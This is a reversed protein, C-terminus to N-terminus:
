RPEPSRCCRRDSRRLLIKKRETLHSHSNERANRQIFAAEGAGLRPALRQYLLPFRHVTVGASTEVAPAGPVASTVVHVEHGRSALGESLLAVFRELGGIAPRYLDTLEILRM